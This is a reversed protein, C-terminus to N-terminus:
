RFLTMRKGTTYLTTYRAGTKEEPGFGDAESNGTASFM